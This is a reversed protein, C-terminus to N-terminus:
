DISRLESNHKKHGLIECLWIESKTPLSSINVNDCIPYSNDTKMPLPYFVTKQAFSGYCIVKTQLFQYKM